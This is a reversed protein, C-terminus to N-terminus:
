LVQVKFVFRLHLCCTHRTDLVDAAELSGGGDPYVTAGSLRPLGREPALPGPKFLQQSFDGTRPFNERMASKAIIAPHSGTVRAM